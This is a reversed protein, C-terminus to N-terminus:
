GRAAMVGSRIRLDRRRMRAQEYGNPGVAQDQETTRRREQGQRPQVNRHSGFTAGLSGNSLSLLSRSCRSQGANAWATPPLKDGHTGTAGGPKGSWRARARVSEPLALQAGLRGHEGAGPGGPGHKRRQEALQREVRPWVDRVFARLIGVAQEVGPRGRHAPKGGRLLAGCAPQPAHIVGFRARGKALLRLADRPKLYHQGFRGRSAAALEAAGPRHWRPPPGGPCAAAPLPGPGAAQAHRGRPPSARIAIPWAPQRAM